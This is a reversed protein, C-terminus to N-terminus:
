ISMHGWSSSETMASMFGITDCCDFAVSWLWRVNIQLGSVAQERQEDLWQYWTGLSAVALVPWDCSHTWYAQLCEEWRPGKTEWLPYLPESVSSIAPLTWLLQSNARPSKIRWLKLHVIKCPIIREPCKSGDPTIYYCAGLCITMQIKYLIM